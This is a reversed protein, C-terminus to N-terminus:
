SKVKKVQVGPHMGTDPYKAFCKSREKGYQELRSKCSRLEATLSDINRHTCVVAPQPDKAAQPVFVPAMAAKLKNQLSLNTQRESTLNKRYISLLNDTEPDVYKDTMVGQDVTAMVTAEQRTNVTATQMAALRSELDRIKRTLVGIQRDDRTYVIRVNASKKPVVHHQKANRLPVTPFLTRKFPVVRTQKAGM